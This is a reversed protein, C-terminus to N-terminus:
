RHSCRLGRLGRPGSEDGIRGSDGAVPVVRTELVRLSASESLSLAELV